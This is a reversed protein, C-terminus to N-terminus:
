ALAPSDLIDQFKAFPQAMKDRFTVDYTFDQCLSQSQTEIFEQNEVARIDMWIPVDGSVVISAPAFVTQPVLRGFPPVPRDKM